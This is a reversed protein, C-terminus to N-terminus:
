SLPCSSDDICSIIEEDCAKGSLPSRIFCFEEVIQGGLLHEMIIRELVQPTCSHYWTGDPYVVAVPGSSCIRLCNAKTRSIGGADVLKLENLRRKLFRWSALGEEKSCCNPESQDCCLFIHRKLRHIGLTQAVQRLNSVHTTDTM